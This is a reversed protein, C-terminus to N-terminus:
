RAGDTTKPGPPERGWTSRYWARYEELLRINERMWRAREAAFENPRTTMLFADLYGAERVYMLEDMPGFPDVLQSARGMLWTDVARKVIASELTFGVSGGAEPLWETIRGQRDMLHLYAYVMYPTRVDPHARQVRVRATDGQVILTEWPYYHEEGPVTVVNARPDQLKRRFDNAGLRRDQERGIMSGPALCYETRTEVRMREEARNASRRDPPRQIVQRSCAISETLALTWDHLDRLRAEDASLRV